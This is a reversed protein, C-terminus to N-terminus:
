MRSGQLKKSLQGLEGDFQNLRLRVSGSLRAYESSNIPHAKRQVIQMQIDASLRACADYETIRDIQYTCILFVCNGIM